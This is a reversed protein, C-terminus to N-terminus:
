AQAATVTQLWQSHYAGLTEVRILRVAALMSSRRAAGPQALMWAGRATGELADTSASCMCDPMLGQLVQLFLTNRALPGEVIVECASEESWLQLLLWVTVQACYLTALTARDGADLHDSLMGELRTGAREVYGARQSFPGGQRSFAPYAFTQADILRRLSEPNADAPTAGECLHAFERGGMFRATPTVRGMVDVNGLMDWDARLAAAPASPAMLITWTGSSVLTLGTSARPAQSGGRALYRALCANSDHVGVHVQCTAPLGWASAIAPRVAGLVGWAPHMPAFMEAWGRQVALASFSGTRPLWLHTHCGMSSVESSAIGCLLWAWYQPYPLLCRTRLWAAPHAEQLWFLQRAVNLGASLVPSLTAEFGDSAAAFADSLETDAAACEFEYDLPEWALGNDSLGVVAAGHTTAIARACRATHESARLTAGMWHQLGWVDLAAYGLPAAVSRNERTHCEVVIGADDVLLLKAHSKGIDIVLTLDPERRPPM